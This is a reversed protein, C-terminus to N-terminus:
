NDFEFPQLARSNSSHGRSERGETQQKRASRRKKVAKSQEPVGASNDIENDTCASSDEACKDMVDDSIPIGDESKAFTDTAAKLLIIASSQSKNASADKGDPKNEDSVTQVAETSTTAEHRGNGLRWVAVIATTLVVIAMVAYIATRFRQRKKLVPEASTTEGREPSVREELDIPLTGGEFLSTQQISLTSSAHAAEKLREYAVTLDKFAKLKTVIRSMDGQSCPRIGIKRLDHLAEEASQFRDEPKPALIKELFRNMRPHLHEIPAKDFNMVRALVEHEMTAKFLREKALMEWFIIGASFLDSEPGLPRSGGKIREPALYTLKGKLVGSPTDPSIGKAKAIGFDALKVVGAKSVLLNHPSIDRHIVCVEEEDKVPLHHAYQLALLLSELIYVAADAPLLLGFDNILRLMGVLDMGEILEMVLCLDDEHKFFDFVQVINPHQLRSVIRAETEFSEIFEKNNALERRIRKLCLQKEFGAPGTKEVAFVEAMGGKGIPHLVRYEGILAEKEKKM